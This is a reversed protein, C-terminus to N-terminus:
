GPRKRRRRRNRARARRGRMRRMRREQEQEKAEGGEECVTEQGVLSIAHLWVLCPQMMEETGDHSPLDIHVKQEVIAIGYVSASERPVKVFTRFCCTLCCCM